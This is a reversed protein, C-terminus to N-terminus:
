KGKPVSMVIYKTYKVTKGDEKKFLDKSAIVWGAKRLLFIVSALRTCRFLTIAEWSTITKKRLLHKKVAETKSSM